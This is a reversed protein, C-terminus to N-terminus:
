AEWILSDFGVTVAMWLFRLEVGSGVGVSSPKIGLRRADKALKLCGKKMEKVHKENM